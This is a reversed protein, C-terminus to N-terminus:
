HLFDQLELVLRVHFGQRNPKRLIIPELSDFFYASLWFPRVLPILTPLDLPAKQWIDILDM